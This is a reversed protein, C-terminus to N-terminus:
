ELHLNELNATMVDFYNGSAPTNSATHFPIALIDLQELQDSIQEAPDDEWIMVRAPHRRLIDRFDIRAKIGPDENPEWHMSVGNLEYRSALYQYVPHSFFLPDGALAKFGRELEADLDTLREELDVLRAHYIDEMGPSLENIAQEINRAQEIALAPDLWTTFAFGRTHTTVRRATSISRKM